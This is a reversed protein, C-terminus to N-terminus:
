EPDGVSLCQCVREEGRIDVGLRQSLRVGGVPACCGGGKELVPEGRCSKLSVTLSLNGGGGGVGGGGGGGWLGRAGGVLDM